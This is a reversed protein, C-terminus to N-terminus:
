VKYCWGLRVEERATQEDLATSPASPGSLECLQVFPTDGRCFHHFFTLKLPPSMLMGDAPEEHPVFPIGQSVQHEVKYPGEEWQDKVKRKGSTPMLKLWSLTVQRWHFPMFREQWLIVETEWGWTHVASTSGQLSRVAMWMVKCHLLPCVSTEGYREDYCLLLWHSLM